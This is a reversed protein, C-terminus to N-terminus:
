GGYSFLSGLDAAARVARAAADLNNSEHSSVAGDIARVSIEDGTLVVHAPYHGHWSARIKGFGSEVSSHALPKCLQILRILRSRLEEPTAVRMPVCRDLAWTLGLSELRLRARAVFDNRSPLDFYPSRSYTALAALTTGGLRDVPIDRLLADLADAGGSRVSLLIMESIRASLVGHTFASPGNFTGRMVRDDIELLTSIAAPVDEIALIIPMKQGFYQVSLDFYRLVLAPQYDDM